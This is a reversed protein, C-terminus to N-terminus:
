LILFPFSHPVISPESDFPIRPFVAGSGLDPLILIYQCMVRLLLNVCCSDVLMKKSVM